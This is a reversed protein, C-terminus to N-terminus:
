DDQLFLDEWRRAGHIVRVIELRSPGLRYFVLYNGFAVSRGGPLLEDRATGMGPARSLRVLFADLRDLWALARESSAQSAIHLLIKQLDEEARPSRIIRM